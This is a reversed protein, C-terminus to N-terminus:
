SNELIERATKKEVWKNHKKCLYKIPKTTGRYDANSFDFNEYNDGLVEKVEKWYNETTKVM